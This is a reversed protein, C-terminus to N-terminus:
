LITLLSCFLFSLFLCVVKDKGKGRVKVPLAKRISRRTRKPSSEEVLEDTESEMVNLDDTDNDDEETTSRTRRRRSVPLVPSEVKRKMGRRSVSSTKVTSAAEDDSVLLLYILLSLM